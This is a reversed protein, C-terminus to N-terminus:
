TGARAARGSRRRRVTVLEAPETGRNHLASVPLGALSLVAGRGFRARRDRAEVQIEGRMVIVLADRWEAEDYALADGPPVAVVRRDFRM